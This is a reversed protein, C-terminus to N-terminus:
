EEHSDYILEGKTAAISQISRMLSNELATRALSKSRCDPLTAHLYRWLSIYRQRVDDMEVQTTSNVKHYFLEPFLETFDSSM